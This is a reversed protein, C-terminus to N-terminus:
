KKAPPRHWVIMQILRQFKSLKLTAGSTVYILFIKFQTIAMNSKMKNENGVKENLKQFNVKIAFLVQNQLMFLLRAAFKSNSVLTSHRRLPSIQSAALRSFVLKSKKKDVKGVIKERRWRFAVCM